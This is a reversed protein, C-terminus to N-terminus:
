IGNQRQILEHQARFSMWNGNQPLSAARGLTLCKACESTEGVSATYTTAQRPLPQLPGARQFKAPCSNVKTWCSTVPFPSLLPQLALSQLAQLAQLVPWAQPRAQPWLQAKREPGLLAEPAELAQAELAKRAKPVQAHSPSLHLCSRVAGLLILSTARLPKPVELKLHLLADPHAGISLELKVQGARHAMNRLFHLVLQQLEPSLIAKAGVRSAPDAAESVLVDLRKRFRVHDSKRNKQIHSSQQKGVGAPLGAQQSASNM